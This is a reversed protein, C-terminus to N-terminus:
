FLWCFLPVFSGCVCVCVIGLPKHLTLTAVHAHFCLCVMCAFSATVVARWAVAAVSAGFRGLSLFTM